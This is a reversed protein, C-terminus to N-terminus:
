HQTTNCLVHQTTNCLVHQSPHRWHRMALVGQQQHLLLQRFLLALTQVELQLLLLTFAQVAGCAFVAHRLLQGV